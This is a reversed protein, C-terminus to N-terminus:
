RRQPRNNAQCWIINLTPFRTFSERATILNTCTYSLGILSKVLGVVVWMSKLYSQCHQRNTQTLCQYCPLFNNFNLPRETFAGKIM